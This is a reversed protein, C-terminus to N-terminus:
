RFGRKMVKAAWRGGGLMRCSEAVTSEIEAIRGVGDVEFKKKQTEREKERDRESVLQTNMRSITARPEAEGRLSLEREKRTFWRFTVHSIETPIGPNM